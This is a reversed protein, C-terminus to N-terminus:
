QDLAIGLSSVGARPATCDADVRTGPDAEIVFHLVRSAGAGLVDLKVSGDKSPVVRPPQDPGAEELVHHVTAGRVRLRPALADPLQSPAGSTGPSLRWVPAATPLRGSNTLRLRVNWLRPGLREVADETLEFRPLLDYVGALLLAVERPGASRDLGLVHLGLREGCFAALSGGPAVADTGPIVLAPRREGSLGGGPSPLSTTLQEPEGSLLALVLDPRAALFRALSRTAPRRLPISGSRLSDERRALWRTPFDAEMDIALAGTDSGADAWRDPNPALLCVLRMTTLDAGGGELLLELGLALGPGSPAGTTDGVVLVEPVRVEAPGVEVVLLPRGAHTSGIESVRVVQAHRAALSRVRTQLQEFSTSGALPESAADAESPETEQGYASPVHVLALGLVLVALRPRRPGRAHASM